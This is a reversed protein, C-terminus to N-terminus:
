HPNSLLGVDTSVHLACGHLLGCLSGFTSQPTNQNSYKHKEAMIVKNRELPELCGPSLPQYLYWLTQAGHELPVTLNTVGHRRESGQRAELNNTYEALFM